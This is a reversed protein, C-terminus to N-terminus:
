YQIVFIIDVIGAKTKVRSAGSLFQLLRSKIKKSKGKEPFLVQYKM